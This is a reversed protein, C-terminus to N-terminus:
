RHGSAKPRPPSVATARRKRSELADRAHGSPRLFTLNCRLHCSAKRRASASTRERSKKMALPREGMRARSPVYRPRRRSVSPFFAADWVLSLPNRPAEQTRLRTRAGAPALSRWWLRRRTSRRASDRVARRLSRRGRERRTGRDTPTPPRRRPAQPPPRGPPRRRGASRPTRPRRPHRVEVSVGLRHPPHEVDGGAEPGATRASPWARRDALSGGSRVPRHTPQDVQGGRMRSTPSDSALRM